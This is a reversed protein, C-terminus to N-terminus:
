PCNPLRMNKSQQFFVLTNPPFEMIVHSSCAFEVFMFGQQISSGEEQSQSAVTLAAGSCWGTLKVYWLYDCNNRSWSQRTRWKVIMGADTRQVLRYFCSFLVGLDMNHQLTYTKERRFLALGWGRWTEGASSCAEGWGVLLGKVRPAPCLLCHVDSVKANMEMGLGRPCRWLTQLLLIHQAPWDRAPSQLDLGFGLFFLLGKNKDLSTWGENVQRYRQGM